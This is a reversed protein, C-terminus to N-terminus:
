THTPIKTLRSPWPLWRWTGHYRRRCKGDGNGDGIGNSEGGGCFDRTRRSTTADIGGGRTREVKGRSRLVGMSAGDGRTRQRREEWKGRTQRSTTTDDTITRRRRAGGKTPCGRWADMRSGGEKNAGAPQLTIAHTTTTLRQWQATTM